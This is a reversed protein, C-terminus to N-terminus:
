RASGLRASLTIRGCRPAHISQTRTPVGATDAVQTTHRSLARRNAACAPGLLMEDPPCTRTLVFAGAAHNRPSKSVRFSRVKGRLHVSTPCAKDLLPLALLIFCSASCHDVPISRVRSRIEPQSCTSPTAAHAIQARQEDSPQGGLIQGGRVRACARCSSATPACMSCGCALLRTTAQCLNHALGRPAQM